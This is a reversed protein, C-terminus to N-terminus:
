KGETEAEVLKPTIFFWLDKKLIRKSENRFLSGLLPMDGLVPIKDIIKREETIPGIGLVATQGLPINVGEVLRRLRFQPLPKRATIKKGNIVATLVDNKAPTAYDLFENMSGILTMHISQRDPSVFPVVDVSTGTEFPETIPQFESDKSKGPSDAGANTQVAMGTVVTRVDAIKDLGQIEPKLPFLHKRRKSGRQLLSQKRDAAIGM